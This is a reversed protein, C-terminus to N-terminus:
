FDIYFPKCYPLSSGLFGPIIEFAEITALLAFLFNCKEASTNKKSQKGCYFSM